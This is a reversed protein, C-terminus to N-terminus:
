SDDTKEETRAYVILIVVNCRRSRLVIYTMRGSVFEVRKV